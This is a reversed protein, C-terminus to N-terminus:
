APKIAVAMRGWPTSISGGRTQSGASTLGASPVLLMDVALTVARASDLVESWGSYPTSSRATGDYWTSIAQLVVRNGGLTTIQGYPYPYTASQDSLTALAEFPSATDVGRFAMMFSSYATTGSGVTLSVSSQGSQAIRYFVKTRTKANVGPRGHIWTGLETWGAPTDTGNHSGSAHYTTAFIILLDGIAWGSPTTATTGSGDASVSIFTPASGEDIIGAHIMGSAFHSM